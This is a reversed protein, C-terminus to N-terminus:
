KIMQYLRQKMELMTIGKLLIVKKVSACDMSCVAVQTKIDDDDDATDTLMIVHKQGIQLNNYAFNQDLHKKVKVLKSKNASVFLNESIGDNIRRGQITKM